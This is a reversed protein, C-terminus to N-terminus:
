ERVRVVRVNAGGSREQFRRELRTGRSSWARTCVLGTCAPQSGGNVGNGHEAGDMPLPGKFSIAVGTRCCIKAAVRSGRTNERCPRLIIASSNTGTVPYQERTSHRQHRQNLLTPSYSQHTALRLTLSSAPHETNLAAYLMNVSHQFAIHQNCITNRAVVQMPLRSSHLHTLIYTHTSPTHTAHTYTTSTRLPHAYHTHTTPRRLPDAYHTQTTPTRLPHAYHTHTTPTPLHYAYHTAYSTYMTPTRMTPHTTSRRLSAALSCLV